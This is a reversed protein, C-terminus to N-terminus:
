LGAIIKQIETADRIDVIGNKDVDCCALQADTLTEIRVIYKQILTADKITITGSLDADGLLMPNTYAKAIANGIKCGFETTSSTIPNWSGLAFYASQNSSADIDFYGGAALECPLVQYTTGNNDYSIKIVVSYKQGKSLPIAKDLPITYYGANEFSKSGKLALTGKTPDTTSTLNTYIEYEVTVNRQSSATSIAELMENDRATFFNAAKHNYGSTAIQTDGFSAGDYQYINKYEHQTTGDITYEADEAIFVAPQYFSLDYYSLYFYGNDGWNSGWSNKVIWAGDAPPTTTFKFKSFSDDWGVITVGHNFLQKNDANFYYSNYTDNWYADNETDGSMADSCYYSASIAGYTMISEKITKISNSVTANDFLEQKTVNMNNDFELNVTDPLFYVDKLYIDSSTRLSSDVSTSSFEYPVKSEDVAGYRRMLTSAAMQISGGLQYPSYGFDDYTDGAAFLSKDSSTDEGNFNFWVLHKESLDITQPANGNKIMNSEMSALSSFAWCTGYPNQSKVSSVYGYDNLNYKSPLNNSKILPAKGTLSDSTLNNNKVFRLQNDIMQYSALIEVSKNDTAFATIASSAMFTSALFLCIAKKYHKYKM